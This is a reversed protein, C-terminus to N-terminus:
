KGNMLTGPAAAVDWTTLCAIRLHASVAVQYFGAWVAINKALKLRLIYFICFHAGGRSCTPLLPTFKPLFVERHLLEHVAVTRM